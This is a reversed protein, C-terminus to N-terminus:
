WPIFGQGKHEKKGDPLTEACCVKHGKESIVFNSALPRSQLRESIFTFCQSERSIDIFKRGLIMAKESFDTNARQNWYHSVM